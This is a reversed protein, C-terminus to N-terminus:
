ELPVGAFRLVHWTFAMIFGAIAMFMLGLGISQSVGTIWGFIRAEQSPHTWQFWVGIMGALIVFAVMIHTIIQSM